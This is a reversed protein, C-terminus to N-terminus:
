LTPQTLSVICRCSMRLPDGSGSQRTAGPSRISTSHLCHCCRTDAVISYFSPVSLLVMFLNTPLHAIANQEMNNVAAHMDAMMSSKGRPIQAAAALQQYHGLTAL